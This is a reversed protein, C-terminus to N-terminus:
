RKKDISSINVTIIANVSSRLEETVDSTFKNVPWLKKETYLFAPGFCWLINNVIYKALCKRTAIDGQNPVM